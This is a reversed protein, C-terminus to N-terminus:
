LHVGDLFSGVSFRFFPLVSGVSSFLLVSGVSGVSSFPSYHYGPIM